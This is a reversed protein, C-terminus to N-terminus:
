YNGRIIVYGYMRLTMHFRPNEQHYSLRCFLMAHKSPTEEERVNVVVEMVGSMDKRSKHIMKGDRRTTVEQSGDPMRQLGIQVRCIMVELSLELVEDNLGEFRDVGIRM